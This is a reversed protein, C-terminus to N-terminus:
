VVSTNAVFSSLYEYKDALVLIGESTIRVEVLPFSIGFRDTFPIHKVEVFIGADIYKQYPRNTIMLLMDRRMHTLMIERDVDIVDALDNFDCSGNLSRVEKAYAVDVAQNALQAKLAIVEDMLQIKQELQDAWARAAAKPNSFDPLMVNKTNNLEPRMDFFEKILDATFSCLTENNRMCGLILAAQAENLLAYETDRGRINEGRPQTVFVVLGLDELNTKYKRVLAIVNKHQINTGSAIVLSTTILQGSADKTVFSKSM